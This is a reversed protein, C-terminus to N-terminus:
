GEIVRQLFDLTMERTDSLVVDAEPLDEKTGIGVAKMGAKKIAAIGAKADEVGICNTYWVGIQEAAALFIDPEPKSKQVKRVDAIADFLDLIGLKSCVAEANKSASALATKVSNKKLDILLERVGPFVDHASLTDLSAVYAENKEKLVQKKKDEPWSVGNHELIIALSAERSVGLLRMNVEEDFSLGYKDSVEKWALFHLKATDVIVGDLDFLVGRLCPSLSFCRSEGEELVFPMNRHVLSLAKGDALRYCVEEKSFRIKVVSSGLNLCFTVSKWSDPLQPNFSFTGKWDSFGAFAYVLAM